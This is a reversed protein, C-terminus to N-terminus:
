LRISCHACRVDNWYIPIHTSENTHKESSVQVKFENHEPMVEESKQLM